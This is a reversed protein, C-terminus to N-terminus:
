APLTASSDVSGSSSRTAIPPVRASPPTFRQMCRRRKWGYLRPHDSVLLYVHAAPSYLWTRALLGHPVVRARRPELVDVLLDLDDEAAHREGVSRPRLAHELRAVRGHVVDRPIVDPHLMQLGRSPTRVAFPLPPGAVVVNRRLLALLRPGSPGVRVRRWRERVESVVDGEVRRLHVGAPDPPLLDLRLLPVEVPTPDGGVYDAWEFTGRSSPTPLSLTSTELRRWSYVLAPRCSASTSWSGM